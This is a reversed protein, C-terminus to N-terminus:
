ASGQRQKSLRKRTGASGGPRGGADRRLREFFRTRDSLGFRVDEVDKRVLQAGDPAGREDHRITVQYLGASLRVQRASDSMDGAETVIAEFSNMAARFEKGARGLL